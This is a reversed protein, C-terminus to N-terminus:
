FEEYNPQYESPRIAEGMGQRNQVAPDEELRHRPDDQWTDYDPRDACLYRVLDAFDKAHEKPKGTKEDYVYHTMAYIHNKCHEMFFIRPEQDKSGLYDKVAIHGAEIGGQADDYSPKFFLDYELLDEQITTGSQAQRRYGYRRDIIRKSAVRKGEKNRIITAFDSTKLDTSTIKHFMGDPYEDYCWLRNMPDVAYWGIAFPRRDHPDMVCFRPWHDPLRRSEVVHKGKQFQHYVAGVLHIFKGHKRAELQDADVSAYFEALAEASIHPNLSVDLNIVNWLDPNEEYIEDSIWPEKLPTMTNLFQGGHDVLGRTNAVFKDKPIPEDAWVVHGDWGEHSDTSQEHTLISVNSGNECDFGTIYGQPNKYWKKIFGRNVLSKIKNVLVPGHEKYEEIIIRARIPAKFRMEEPWYDPYEGMLHCLLWYTGITTKGSRNGGLVACRRKTNKLVSRQKEDYPKFLYFPTEERAELVLAAAEELTMNPEGSSTEESM